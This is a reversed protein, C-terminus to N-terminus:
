IIYMYMTCYGTRHVTDLHTRLPGFLGGFGRQAPLRDDLSGQRDGIGFPEVCDGDAAQGGVEADRRHRQVPMDGALVLKEGGHAVPEKGPHGRVGIGSGGPRVLQALQNAREDCRQAGMGSGGSQRGGPHQLVVLAALQGLTRQLQQARRAERDLLRGLDGAM